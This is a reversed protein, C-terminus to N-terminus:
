SEEHKLYIYFVTGEGPKSSVEVKGKMAEIQNKTIFLGIGRADPNDHFTKYMGFLKAGHRKLDIGLGNDEIAVVIYEDEQKASLRVFSARNNSRYKIANTMFNLLISEVYAPIGSVITGPPIRNDILVGNERALASINNIVAVTTDYLHIPVSQESVSMNIQTVDNLHDITRHLNESAKILFQMWQNTSLDPYEQLLLDILMTFNGTHSRLNHSVIHTFNHLRENQDRTIRLLSSIEKQVQKLQSIDAAIGLYGVIADNEYVATVTLQVPFRDGNKRVYTWERTDFYGLRAKAVFTEFGEVQIGLEDSLERSHEGIEERLHIIEPTRIGIMEEKTYGLLNEAGKNFTTIVGYLDTGIISVQTSAALIGELQSLTKALQKHMTVRQSIDIIQSVFYLVEKNKQRVASVALLAYVIHGEKHFYRKEMHYFSHKGDVLEKLLRLDSHLDEPHTIDQFTLANLEERSYGLMTCLCDNVQMWRGDKGVIAMGIAANEFNNRFTEESIRLQEESEKQATIDISYMMIGEITGADSRWPRVEWSIWQVSGDMRQFAESTRQHVNGRLCDQHITKWEDGIEPFVEYHSKGIIDTKQIGYDQLWRNSAALYRVEKDFMAIAIPAQEVFLKNLELYHRKKQIDFYSGSMWEPKGDATRTIVKGKDIVWVWHGEKHRMRMEIEYLPIKGEFHQELLADSRKLDDPHTLNNWTRVDIPALEELTYGLLEAWQSNFITEGTQVNWEWTGIASAELIGQMRKQKKSLEHYPFHQECDRLLAIILGRVAPSDLQFSHIESAYFASTGTGTVWRLCHGSSTHKNDNLLKQLINETKPDVFDWWQKGFDDSTFGSMQRFPLNGWWSDSGPLLVVIGGCSRELLEPLLETTFLLQYADEPSVRSNKEEPM